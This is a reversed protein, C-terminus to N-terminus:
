VKERGIEFTLFTKIRTKFVNVLKKSVRYEVLGVILIEACNLSTLPLSFNLNATSHPNHDQQLIHTLSHTVM